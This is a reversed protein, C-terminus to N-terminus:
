IHISTQITKSLLIRAQQPNPPQIPNGQTPQTQGFQRIDKSKTKDKRGKKTTKSRMATIPVNFIFQQIDSANQILQSKSLQLANKIFPTYPPDQQLDSYLTQINRRSAQLLPM